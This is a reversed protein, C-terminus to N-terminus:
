NDTALKKIWPYIMIIIALARLADYDLHYSALASQPVTVLATLIMVAIIPLIGRFSLLTTMALGLAVITTYSADIGVSLLFNHAFALGVTAFVILAQLFKMIM